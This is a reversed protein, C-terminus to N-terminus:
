LPQGLKRATARPLLSRRISGSAGTAYISPAVQTLGADGPPREAKGAILVGGPGLASALRRWITEASSHELYIAANRWLIIDWPGREVDALMDAAKWYTRQRLLEVPSYQKGAQKFYKDLLAPEVLKLATADYRGARAQEIADGRCDTGLLFCRDLLGAEALLIAMSYLEAGTSCAASWIRLPRNRNALAPLIAAQLFDFVRPERFFETTGILLSNLAKALLHPKRELLERAAHTSHVKLLRLCAPLRRRLPPARYAAPDLGARALVWAAFEDLYDERIHPSAALTTGCAASSCLRRGSAKGQFSIHSLDYSLHM